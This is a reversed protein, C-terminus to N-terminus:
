QRRNCEREFWVSLVDPTVRIYGKKIVCNLKWLEIWAQFKVAWKRQGGVGLIRSLDTISVDPSDGFYCRFFDQGLRTFDIPITKPQKQIM